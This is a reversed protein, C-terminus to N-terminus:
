TTALTVVALMAAMLGAWILPLTRDSAAKYGAIFARRERESYIRGIQAQASRFGSRRRIANDADSEEFRARRLADELQAMTPDPQGYRDFQM